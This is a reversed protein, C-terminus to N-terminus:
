SAKPEIEEFAEHSFALGKTINKAPPLLENKDLNKTSIEGRCFFPFGCIIRTKTNQFHEAM